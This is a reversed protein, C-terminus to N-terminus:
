HLDEILGIFSLSVGHGFLRGRILQNYDALGCMSRQRKKETNEVAGCRFSGM